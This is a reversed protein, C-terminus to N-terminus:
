AGCAAAMTRRGWENENQELEMRYTVCSPIDGALFDARVAEVNNNRCAARYLKYELKQIETMKVRKAQRAKLEAEEEAIYDVVPEALYDIIKGM